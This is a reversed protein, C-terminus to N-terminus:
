LGCFVSVADERGDREEVGEELIEREDAKVRVDVTVREGDAGEVAEAFSVGDLVDAGEVVGGKVCLKAVNEARLDFLGRFVPEGEEERREVSDFVDLPLPEMEWEMEVVAELLDMGESDGEELEDGEDVDERDGEEETEM